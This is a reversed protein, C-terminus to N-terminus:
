TSRTSFQKMGANASWLALALGFLFGVTLRGGSDAGAIRLVQDRLLEFAGQPMIGAALSLHDAISRADAFLGYLSVLATIAPFIALLSFFVVGAAVAM